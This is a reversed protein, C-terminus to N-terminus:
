WDVSYSVGDMSGVHTQSGSLIVGDSHTQIEVDIQHCRKPQILLSQECSLYFAYLSVNTAPTNAARPSSALLTTHKM